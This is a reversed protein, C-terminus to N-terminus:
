GIQKELGNMAQECEVLQQNNSLQLISRYAPMLKIKAKSDYSEVKLRLPELRETIKDARVKIKEAIIGDIVEDLKNDAADIIKMFDGKSYVSMMDGVTLKPGAKKLFIASRKVITFSEENPGFMDATEPFQTKMKTYSKRMESEIENPDIAELGKLVAPDLLTESQPMSALVNQGKGMRGCASKFGEKTPMSLGHDIPVMRNNGDADEAVLVNAAHRDMQMTMMDFLAIKSYDEKPVSEFFEQEKKEAELFKKKKDAPLQDFNKPRPDKNLFDAIPGKANVMHQLAGPRKPGAGTAFGGTTDPLKDTDLAILSTECVGIDLGTVRQLTDNVTKSMAERPAGCGKKWGPGFMDAGDPEADIPKFIYVDNKGGEDRGSGERTRKGGKDKPVREVFWTGSVTAGEQRARQKMPNEEFFLKVELESAKARKAEDDWPPAGLKDSELGLLLINAYKLIFRANDEKKQLETTRMANWGEKSNLPELFKECEVVLAEISGRNNKDAEVLKMADLVPKLSADRMKAQLVISQCIQVQRAGEKSKIAAFVKQDSAPLQAPNDAGEYDLFAKRKAAVKAEIAAALDTAKKQLEAIDGPKAKDKADELKKLAGMVKDFEKNLPALDKELEKQIMSSRIVVGDPTAGLSNMPTSDVKKAKFEKAKAAFVAEAEKLRQKDALEQAAEEKTPKAPKAWDASAGKEFNGTFKGMEKEYRDADGPKFAFKRTSGVPAMVHDYVAKDKATRQQKFQDENAKRRAAILTKELDGIEKQNVALDDDPKTADLKQKAQAVATKLRSLEGPDAKADEVAKLHIELGSIQKQLSAKLQQQREAFKNTESALIKEMRSGVKPLSEPPASEASDKKESAKPNLAAAILIDLKDLAGNAGDWNKALAMKGAEQFLAELEPKNSAIARAKQYDPGLHAFRDDFAKKPSPPGGQVPQVQPKVQQTLPTSPSPLNPTPVSPNVQGTKPPPPLNPVPGTPKVQTTPLPGPRQQPPPRQLPNPSSPMPGSPKMVLPPQPQQPKPISGPLPSTPRQPPIPQNQVPTTPKVGTNVPTTTLPTVPSTTDDADETMVEDSENAGLAQLDWDVSKCGNNNMALKIGTRLTGTVTKSCFIYKENIKKVIGKGEREGKVSTAKAEDLLSKGAPKPTVLLVQKQTGVILTFNFPKDKVKTLATKLVYPM